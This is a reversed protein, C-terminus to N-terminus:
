HTATKQIIIKEFLKGQALADELANHTIATDVQLSKMIQSSRTDDWLCGTVGMYLAKIDLATFGFPNEGLYRHFYYNVFSWDFPANFAVFVPQANFSHKLVWDKFERMGKAPEVGTQDLESLKLKSVAIAEPLFKATITQFERYFTVNSQGVIGAGLSLMSYEGPIPGATEIDVSIYIEPKV